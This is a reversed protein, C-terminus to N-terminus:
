FHLKTVRAGEEVGPSCTALSECELLAAATAWETQISVKESMLVTWSKPFSLRCEAKSFAAKQCPLVRLKTLKNVLQKPLSHQVSNVINKNCNQTSNVAM